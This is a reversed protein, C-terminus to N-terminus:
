RKLEEIGKVKQSPRENVRFSVMNALVTFGQSEQRWAKVYTIPM